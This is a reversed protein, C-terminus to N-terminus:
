TTSEYAVLVAALCRGTLAVYPAAAPSYTDAAALLYLCNEVNCCVLVERSRDRLLLGYSM